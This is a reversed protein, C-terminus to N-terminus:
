RSLKFGGKNKDIFNIAIDILNEGAYGIDNRQVCNQLEGIKIRNEKLYNLINWAKYNEIPANIGIEIKAMWADLEKPNMNLLKEIGKCIKFYTDFDLQGSVLPELKVGHDPQNETNTM